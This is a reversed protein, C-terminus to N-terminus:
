RDAVLATRAERVAFPASVESTTALGDVPQWAGGDVQFEGAWRTTLTVQRQDAVARYVHAVTHDPYPAGPDTTVLTAGDGFDWTYDVPVVRVLVPTGLITTSFQQQGAGSMAITEVNVLVSGVAPQLTLGGPDIPLRKLDEATIVIPEPAEAPAPPEGADVQPADEPIWQGPLGGGAACGDLDVVYGEVQHSYETCPQPGSNTVSQAPM